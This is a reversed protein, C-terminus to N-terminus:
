KAANGAINLVDWTRAFPPAYCLDLMGLQETTMGMTIAASLVNVRMVADSKGIIQGGLLKKTGNEYVLKVHIPEQGPYYDTHNKDTIFVSKVDYGDAKAEEESLGVRGAELSLLKLCSAGLTGPFEKKADALNEGVIRGLKNATTALPIYSSDSKLHHKVVACDGAAYIENVSTMGLADVVVAGNKVRKISTDELFSTNPRIGATIIVMDADYSVEEAKVHTVKDDGILETVQTGLHLTIGKEVLEQELIDTVEKEFVEKLIRDEMQFVRVQKGQHVAADVLELGIFGAGIIAVNKVNPDLMKERISRGDELNRLTFVNALSANKISPVIASAGSAIMLKDYTVIQISQDKLNLVQVTKKTEDVNKVEHQLHVQIGAKEAQEKTRVIMRNENEFFDGIFYPLGCAGFSIYDKSEYVVVEAEPNMRRLKAAASMGAANGGIIVVRM